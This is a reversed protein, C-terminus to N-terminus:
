TGSSGILMGLAEMTTASMWGLANPILPTSSYLQGMGLSLVGFLAVQAYQDGKDEGSAQGIAALNLGIAGLNLLTAMGLSPSAAALVAPAGPLLALSAVTAGAAALQLLGVRHKYALGAM